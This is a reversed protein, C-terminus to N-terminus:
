REIGLNTEIFLHLSLLEYEFTDHATDNIDGNQTATITKWPIPHVDKTSSGRRWDAAASTISSNRASNFTESVRQPLVAGM